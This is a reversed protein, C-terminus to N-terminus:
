KRRSLDRLFPCTGVMHYCSLCSEGKRVFGGAPSSVVESPYPILSQCRVM